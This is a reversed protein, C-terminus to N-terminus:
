RRNVAAGHRAVFIIHNNRGGGVKTLGRPTAQRAEQEIIGIAAGIGLFRQTAVDAIQGPDRQTLAHELVHRRDVQFRRQETALDGQRHRQPWHADAAHIRTAALQLRCPCRPRRADRGAQRGHRDARDFVDRCRGIREPELEVDNAVAREHLVQDRAGFRGARARHHKRDIHRHRASAVAIRMRAHGPGISRQAAHQLRHALRGPAPIDPQASSRM